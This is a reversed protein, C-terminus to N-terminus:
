TKRQSSSYKSLLNYMKESLAWVILYALDCHNLNSNNCEPKNSLIHFLHLYYFSCRSAILEFCREGEEPFLYDSNAGLKLYNEVEEFDYRIVAWYLDLDIERHGHSLMEEKSCDFYEEFSSETFDDYIWLGNNHIEIPIECLNFKDFLIKKIEQNDMKRQRIIERCDEIWADPKEMIMEWCQTIWQIPCYNNYGESCINNLLAVDYKHSETLRKVGDVDINFIAEALENEIPVSNMVQLSYM